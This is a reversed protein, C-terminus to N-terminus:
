VQSAKVIYSAFSSWNTATIWTDYLSDPVVIKCNANINSFCSTGLTPVQECNSFDYKLTNYNSSFCSNGISTLKSPFVIIGLNHCNIINSNGISTINDSLYIEELAYASQIMNNALSTIILPFVAKKLLRAGSSSVMYTPLSTTLPPIYLQKQNNSYYSTMKTLKSNCCIMNTIGNYDGMTILEKPYILAKISNTQYFNNKEIDTIEKPITITELGENHCFGYQKLELNNGIEVKKLLSEYTNVSTTGTIPQFINNNNSSYYYFGFKGSTSLSITYKGESAYNHTINKQTTMSTGTLTDTTNDGWEITLTGNVAVCFKFSKTIDNVEIYLRTKGDDTVYNQGIYLGGYKNVYDKADALDWNWGQATLGTHTPNAPLSNLALFENKTYSNTITGDYDFFTVDKEEVVTGGGSVNVDVSAYNTVDKTGNETITLTGTPFVGIPVNVEASAYNTVNHTGNTTINTTGTPIIGPVNVDATAYNKVNHTGNETISITGTPESGGGGGKKKGLLYSTVDM